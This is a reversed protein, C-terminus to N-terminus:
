TSLKALRSVVLQGELNLVFHALFSYNDPNSEWIYLAHAIPASTIVVGSNIPSESYSTVNNILVQSTNVSLEWISQCIISTPPNLHISLIYCIHHQVAEEHGGSDSIHFICWSFPGDNGMTHSNYAIQMATNYEAVSKGVGRGWVLLQPSKLASLTLKITNYCAIKKIISQKPQKSKIDVMM